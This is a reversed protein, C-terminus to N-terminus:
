NRTTDPNDASPSLRMGEPGGASNLVNSIAAAIEAVTQHTTARTFEARAYAREGHTTPYYLQFTEEHGRITVATANNVLHPTGDLYVANVFGHGALLLGFATMEMSLDRAVEKRQELEDRLEDTTFHALTRGFSHARGDLPAAPTKPSTTSEHDPTTDTM